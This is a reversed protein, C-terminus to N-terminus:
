SNRRHTYVGGIKKAVRKNVMDWYVALVREKAAASSGHRKMHDRVIKNVEKRAQGVIRGVNKAPVKWGDKGRRMSFTYRPTRARMESLDLSVSTKLDAPSLSHGISGIGTKQSNPHNHTLIADKAARQSQSNLRVRNKSGRQYSLTEGNTGIIHLNELHDDKTRNEADIVGSRQKSNMHRETQHREHEDYTKSRKFERNYRANRRSHTKIGKTYVGESM